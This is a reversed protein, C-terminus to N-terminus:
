FFLLAAGLAGPHRLKSVLIKPEASKDFLFTRMERKAGPLFKSHAKVAVSGALILAEPSFINVLGAFGQGLVRGLIGYARKNRAKQFNTQWFVGGAVMHGFEAANNKKGRYIQNNIVIGGGLGTGLILGLFNQFNKGQGLLMEARTFSNADNDIKVPLHYRGKLLSVLDFNAKFKMNGSVRVTGKAPNVLGAVGIGIGRIKAKAKLADILDCLSKKFGALDTPTALTIEKVSKKGDFVVGTMKTAGIDIGIINQM